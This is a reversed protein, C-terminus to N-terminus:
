VGFSPLCDSEEPYTRNKPSWNFDIGDLGLQVNCTHCVTVLNDEVFAMEPKEIRPIIHHVEPSDYNLIHYKNWCRQCFGGDLVIIKKRLDRWRKSHLPKDSSQVKKQYEIKHQNIQQKHQLMQKCQHEESIDIMRGCYGCRRFQAM